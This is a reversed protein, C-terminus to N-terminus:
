KGGKLLHNNTAREKRGNTIYFLSIIAPIGIYLLTEPHKASKQSLHDYKHEKEVFYGILQIVHMVIVEDFVCLSQQRWEDLSNSLEKLVSVFIPATQYSVKGLIVMSTSKENTESMCDNQGIRTNWFTGGVHKELSEQWIPHAYM